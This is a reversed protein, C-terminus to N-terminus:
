SPSPACVRCIPRRATKWTGGAGDVVVLLVLLYYVLTALALLGTARVAARRAGAASRGALFATLGWALGSSTLAVVAQGVVGGAFDAAFALLGLVVAVIAVVGTHTRRRGDVAVETV